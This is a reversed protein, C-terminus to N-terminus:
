WWWWWTTILRIIIIYIIVGSSQSRAGAADKPRAHFIHSAIITVHKTCLYTLCYVLWCGSRLVAEHNHDRGLNNNIDVAANFFWINICDASHTFIRKFKTHLRHNISDSSSQNILCKVVYLLIIHAAPNRKHCLLIKRERYNDFDRTIVIIQYIIMIYRYTPLQFTEGRPGCAM